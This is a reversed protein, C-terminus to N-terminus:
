ILVLSSTTKPLEHYKDIGCQNSIIPLGRQPIPM